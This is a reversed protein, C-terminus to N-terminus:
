FNELSKKTLAETVKFQSSYFEKLDHKVKNTIERHAERSLRNFEFELQSYFHEERLAIINDFNEQKKEILAITREQSKKVIDAIRDDLSNHLKKINELHEQTKKYNEEADTLSKAIDSSASTLAESLLKSIPKFVLAILTIFCLAIWFYENM